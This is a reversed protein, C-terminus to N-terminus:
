RTWPELGQAGVLNWLLILPKFSVGAIVGPALFLRLRSCAKKAGVRHEYQDWRKPIRRPIRRGDFIGSPLEGDIM